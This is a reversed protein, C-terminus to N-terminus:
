KKVLFVMDDGCDFESMLDMTDQLNKIKWFDQFYQDYIRTFGMLKCATLFLLPYSFTYYDIVTFNMKSCYKKFTETTFYYMHIPAEVCTPLLKYTFGSYNPISVILRGNKKLIKYCEKLIRSPYQVHELSWNLRIIDFFNESFDAKILDPYIKTVGNREAINRAKGSIEIGFVEFGNKKLNVLSYQKGFIHTSVGSGCGIDLIKCPKENDLFSKPHPYTKFILHKRTRPYFNLLSIFINSVISNKSKSLSNSVLRETFKHYWKENKDEYFSYFDSYYNNLKNARPRPNLFILGCEECQVDSHTL